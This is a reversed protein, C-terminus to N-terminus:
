EEEIEEDDFLEFGFLDFVKKCAKLLKTTEPKSSNEDPCWLSVTLKTMGKSITCNLTWGDYGKIDNSEELVTYFNIDDFVDAIPQYESISLEKTQSKTETNMFGEPEHNISVFKEDPTVSFIDDYGAYSAEVEITINYM